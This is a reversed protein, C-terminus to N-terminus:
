PLETIGELLLFSLKDYVLPKEPFCHPQQRERTEKKKKYFMFPIQAPTGQQETPSCKGLM